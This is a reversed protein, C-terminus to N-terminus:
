EREGWGGLCGCSRGRLEVGERAMFGSVRVVVVLSDKSRGERGCPGVQCCRAHGSISKHQMKRRDNKLSRM